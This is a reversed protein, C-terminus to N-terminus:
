GDDVAVEIGGGGGGRSSMRWPRATAKTGKRAEVVGGRGRMWELDLRTARGGARRPAVEAEKTTIRM